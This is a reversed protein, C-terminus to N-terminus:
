LLLVASDFTDLYRYATRQSVGVSDAISDVTCNRSRDTLLQMVRLLREIKPQDM